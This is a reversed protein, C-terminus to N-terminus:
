REDRASVAIVTTKLQTYGNLAEFGKERGWGSAKCGGFPTEIGTQGGNVTVQGSKLREAVRLARSIERTWVSAVLGYDSDNALDVAEDEDRFSAVTLVPGFVEERFIRMDPLVDTYVTPYVYRGRALDGDAAVQGGVVLKAGDERAIEFYQRVKDFQAETTLPGLTKGPEVQRLLRVVGEVVPEAVSEHVILRSLAACQQGTSLRIASASQAAADLDADEFVINPSKGGLEMMTPKLHEGALRAVARGTTASGTFAVLAVGPHRVLPAGVDPGTGTVVNFVGDPLGHETCLRALMESTSPTFESPKLVVANGAALAAAVGRAAQTLPGNWPTIMGVVGFPERKTFAQQGDGLDLTGGFFARCISGYYEFYDAAIALSAAMESRIKGTEACEADIFSDAHERLAEGIRVLVRGRVTAALRSWEPAAAVAADVAADVERQGALAVRAVPEGNVPSTVTLADGAETARTKGAIWSHVERM